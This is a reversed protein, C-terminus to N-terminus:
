DTSGDDSPESFTRDWNDSYTERPTKRLSSLFPHQHQQLLESAKKMVANIRSAREDQESQNLAHKDCSMGISFFNLECDFCYTVFRGQWTQESRKRIEDWTLTM